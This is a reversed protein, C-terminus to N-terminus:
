GYRVSGEGTCTGCRVRVLTQLGHRFDFTGVRGRGVRAGGGKWCGGCTGVHRQGRGRGWIPASGGDGGGFPHAILACATTAAGAGLAYGRVHPCPGAAAREGLPACAWPRMGGPRGRGWPAGWAPLAFRSDGRGLPTRGCAGAGARASMASSGDGGGLPTCLSDGGCMCVPGGVWLPACMGSYTAALARLARGECTRARASDLFGLMDLDISM